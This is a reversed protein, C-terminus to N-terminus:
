KLHQLLRWRVANSTELVQQDPLHLTYLEGLDRVIRAAGRFNKSSIFKDLYDEVVHRKSNACHIVSNLTTAIGVHGVGDEPNEWFYDRFGSTFLLDGARVASQEIRLGLDRQDISYRPLWVGLQGYSWKTFASCDMVEPWERPHAGRKYVTKGIRSRAIEVINKIEFTIGIKTLLELCKDTTVPMKLLEFDVAM